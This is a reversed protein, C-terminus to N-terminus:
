EKLAEELPDVTVRKIIQAQPKRELGLEKINHNMTNNVGDIFANTMISDIPLESIKWLNKIRQKLNM